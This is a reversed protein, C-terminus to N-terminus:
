FRTGTVRRSGDGLSGNLLLSYTRIGTSQSEPAYLPGLGMMARIADVMQRGHEQDEKTPRGRDSARARRM